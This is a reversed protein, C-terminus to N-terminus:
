ALELQESAAAPTATAPGERALAWSGTAGLLLCLLRAPTSGLRASQGHQPVAMGLELVFRAQAADPKPNPYPTQILTLEPKGVM